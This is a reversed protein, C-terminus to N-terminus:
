RKQGKDHHGHKPRAKYEADGGGLLVKRSLNVRGQADIEVCKVMIEDGIHVVDEVKEVREKALQSIHVLGEKGPLVEVFAGFNMLRTVKGVYTEGVEVDKTLQEIWEKARDGGAAEVSAISVLGSDDIDIKAGTEETIKKIVKGGPGIVDRIKDPDIQITIIRPAYPSLEPRPESIAELMKDMIFLRGEHAQQLAKDLIERSLGKIKIDMQIATVGKKTGAVKFDMDGLADEMGQIDTLITFDDDKTVLGMAVGAVPAEIPVGADMLALTSGCVSGMSSSGNSELVESVVRIAYPFDAESPMVQTLAREALKGHGIERRGPGRSSKTEGVCFSPFNYHHMYRRETEMGVGDIHQAESLPALTAFSMVQTQGRTFLGTGHTRTFLGVECSVPRVENVQRGDPRIKDVAIMHRVIEKIMKQTVAAVDEMNEPYIDAFHEYIDAEVTNMKEERAMKDADCVAGKMAAEGYAHVAEVIDAPVEAEVFEQKPTSISELFSLQFAVVKRIEEHAVMIADLIDAEPVQKAGGEVMLIADKTGAVVIDMDSAESQAVTPNIVFQGDVRGVRVGAIPGAFPIHSMCLSVSAGILAAIEPANDHDVCFDYAVVHVEHRYTKPFLPRIPRDILRAFLTASEPPKAERKIFGGPIKGVAYMKEEYDVTLPFFDTGEKAEKSGTATVFVATDGYRVLAAGSAQKALKGVEVRLPRGAFDMQFVQEM